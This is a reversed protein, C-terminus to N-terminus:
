NGVTSWKAEELNDLYPFHHTIGVRLLDLKPAPDIVPSDFNDADAFAITMRIRRGKSFQYATPLLDFTL